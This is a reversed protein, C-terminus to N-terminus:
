VAGAKKNKLLISVLLWLSSLAFLGDWAWSYYKRKTWAKNGLDTSATDLALKNIQGEVAKIKYNLFEERTVPPLIFRTKTEPIFRNAEEKAVKINKNYIDQVDPRKKIQEAIQSVQYSDLIPEEWVTNSRYTIIWRQGTWRDTKYINQATVNPKITIEREWRIVYLVLLIIVIGLPILPKKLVQLM